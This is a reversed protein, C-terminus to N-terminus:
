TLLFIWFQRNSGDNYTYKTLHRFNCRETINYFFSRYLFHVSNLNCNQPILYLHLVKKKFPLRSQSESNVVINCLSTLTLERLNCNSWNHLYVFQQTLIKDFLDYTSHRLSDFNILCYIQDTSTIHIIFFWM